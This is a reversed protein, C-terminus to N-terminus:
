NCYAFGTMATGHTIQVVNLDIYKTDAIVLNGLHDTVAVTPHRGLNHPVTWVISPISQPHEYNGGGAPGAPGPPGRVVVVAGRGVQPVVVTSGGGERQAVVATTQQTVVSGRDSTTAVSM